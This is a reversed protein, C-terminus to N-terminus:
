DLKLPFPDLSRINLRAVVSLMVVSLMFVNTMIAKNAVSLLFLVFSSYCEARIVSLM